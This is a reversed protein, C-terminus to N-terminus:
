SNKNVLLKYVFEDQGFHHKKIVLLACMITSANFLTLLGSNVNNVNPLNVLVIPTM